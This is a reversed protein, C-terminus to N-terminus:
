LFKEMGIKQPELGCDKYFQIASPNCTWVNLTVNYCGLKKAFDLVANYIMTGLHQGRREENVCLDDIYLTKIPCFAHNDKYDQLICFAYGQVVNNEDVAVLVPTHEDHFIKFLQEHNYKRGGKVFLDPRGQQHVANVQFLLHDICEIDSDKVKRVSIKNM